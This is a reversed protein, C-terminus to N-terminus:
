IERDDPASLGRRFAGEVPAAPIGPTGDFYCLPVSVVAFVEPLLELGCCAYTNVQGAVSRAPRKLIRRVRDNVEKKSYGVPVAM